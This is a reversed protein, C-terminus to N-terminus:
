LLEPGLVALVVTQPQGHRERHRLWWIAGKKVSFDAPGAQGQPEGLLDAVTQGLTPQHGVLLVPHQSEPWGALTLVHAPAAGPALAEHPQWPRRPHSARGLAHLAQVTQVTRRAPSALIRTDAPLRRHLWQAMRAAQRQGRPTLARDLDSQGPQPDHAEAHRWLILDM